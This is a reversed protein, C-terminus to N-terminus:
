RLSAIVYPSFCCPALPITICDWSPLADLQLAPFFVCLFFGLLFFSSRRQEAFVCLGCDM